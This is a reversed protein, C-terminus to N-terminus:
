LINKNYSFCLDRQYGFKLYKINWDLCQNLKKRLASEYKSYHKPFFDWPILKCLFMSFALFTVFNSSFKCFIGFKCLFRTRMTNISRKKDRKKVLAINKAVNKLAPIPYEKSLNLHVVEDMLHNLYIKNKLSQLPVRVWLWKTRLRVSLWKTLSFRTHPM